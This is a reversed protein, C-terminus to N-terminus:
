LLRSPSNVVSSVRARTCPWVKSRGPLNRRSLPRPRTGSLASAVRNGRKRPAGTFEVFTRAAQKDAVDATWKVACTFLVVGGVSTIFKVEGTLGIIAVSGPLNRM